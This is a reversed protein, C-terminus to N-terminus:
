IANYYESHRIDILKNEPMNQLLDYKDILPKFKEIGYKSMANYFLFLSEYTSLQARIIRAYNKKEEESLNEECDVFRLLHYLNTFYHGLFTSLYEEFYFEYSEILLLKSPEITQGNNRLKNKYNSQFGNFNYQFYQRGTQVGRSTSKYEIANIIQHHLALLHFFTNDFRQRLMTTNQEKFEKRTLKLEEQQAHLEEKQAFFAAMLMVFGALGLLPATTGGLWDGIPGLKDFSDTVFIKMIVFPSSIGVFALLIAIILTINYRNFWSEKKEM